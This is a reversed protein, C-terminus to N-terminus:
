QWQLLKLLFFSIVSVSGGLTTGWILDIITIRLPWGKLTALNTLDYTAYTIFGFFMGVLLAYTWRDKGLAPSIVFFVLGTVFIFYFTMAAVWNPRDLMIFGLERRYLNKAVLGLWVIDITFFVVLTMLFLRIARFM